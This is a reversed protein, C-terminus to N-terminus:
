CSPEHYQKELIFINKEIGNIKKLQSNQTSQKDNKTTRHKEKDSM